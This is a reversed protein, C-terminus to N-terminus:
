WRSFNRLMYITFSNCSIEWKNRNRFVTLFPKLYFNNFFAFWLSYYFIKSWCFALLCFSALFFSVTRWYLLLDATVKSSTHQSIKCHIKKCTFGCLWIRQFGDKAGRFVWNCFRCARCNPLGVHFLHLRSLPGALWACRFHSFHINMELWWGTWEKAM